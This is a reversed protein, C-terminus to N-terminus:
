QSAATLNKNTQRFRFIKKNINPTLSLYTRIINHLNYDGLLEFFIKQTKKDQILYKLFNLFNLKKGKAICVFSGFKLVINEFESLNSAESPNMLDKIQQSSTIIM